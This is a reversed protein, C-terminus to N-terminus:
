YIVINKRPLSRRGAASLRVKGPLSFPTIFSLLM